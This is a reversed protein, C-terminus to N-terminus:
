AVVVKIDTPSATIAGSKTVEVGWTDGPLFSVATVAISEETDTPLMTVALATALGNKRMAYTITSAGLGTGNNFVTMTSLSFARVVPMDQPTTPAVANTYGFPLYRTTTTTDVQRASFQPYPIPGVSTSATIMEQAVLGDLLSQLATSGHTEGTVNPTAPPADGFSWGTDNFWLSATSNCTIKFEQAARWETTARLVTFYAADAPTDSWFKFFTEAPDLQNFRVEATVGDTANLEVQFGGIGLCGIFYTQAQFIFAGSGNQGAFLNILGPAIDHYFTTGSADISLREAGGVRARVATQASLVVEQTPAAPDNDPSASGIRVIDGTDKVIGDIYATGADNLFKVAVGLFSGGGGFEVFTRSPLGGGAPLRSVAFASGFQLLMEGKLQVGASDAVSRIATHDTYPDAVAM